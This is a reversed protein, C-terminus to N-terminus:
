KTTSSGSGTVGSSGTGSGTPASPDVPTGATGRSGPLEATGPAKYAGAAAGNSAPASYGSNTSSSGSSYGSNMRDTGMSSCAGLVFVCAVPIIWKTM